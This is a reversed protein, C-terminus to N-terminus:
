LCNQDKKKRKEYLFFAFCQFFNCVSVFGNFFVSFGIFNRSFRFSLQTFFFLCNKDNKRKEYFFFSLAGLFIAFLCLICIICLFVGSFRYFGSFFSHKMLFFFLKQSIKANKMCFFSLAGLFIAFVSM